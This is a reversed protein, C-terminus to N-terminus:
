NATNLFPTRSNLFDNYNAMNDELLYIFIKAQEQPTLITAPADVPAIGGRQKRSQRKQKRSGQKSKRKYTRRKIFRRM